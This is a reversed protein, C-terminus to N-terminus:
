KNEIKSYIDLKTYKYLQCLSISCAYNSSQGTHLYMNYLLLPYLLLPYTRHPYLIYRVLLIPVVSICFVYAFYKLFQQLLTGSIVSCFRQFVMTLYGNLSLYVVAFGLSYYASLMCFVVTILLFKIAYTFPQRQIYALVHLLFYLFVSFCRILFIIIIVVEELFNSFIRRFIRKVIQLIWLYRPLVISQSALTDSLCNSPTSFM